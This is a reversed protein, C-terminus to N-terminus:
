KLNEGQSRPGNAGREGSADCAKVAQQSCPLQGHDGDPLGGPRKECAASGEASALSRREEKAVRDDETRILDLNNFGVCELGWVTM